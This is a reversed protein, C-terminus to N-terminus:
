QLKTNNCCVRSRPTYTHTDKHIEMLLPQTLCILIFVDVLIFSKFLFFLLFNTPMGIGFHFFEDLHNKSFVFNYHWRYLQSGNTIIKCLLYIYKYSSINQFSLYSRLTYNRLLQLYPRQQTTAEVKNYSRQHKFYNVM